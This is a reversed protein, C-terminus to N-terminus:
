LAGRPPISASEYLGKIAKCNFSLSLSCFVPSLPLAVKTVRHMPAQARAALSGSCQQNPYSIGLVSGGNREERSCRLGAVGCQGQSRAPQSPVVRFAGGFSGTIYSM